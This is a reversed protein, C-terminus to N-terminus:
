AYNLLCRLQEKHIDSISFRPHKLRKNLINLILQYIMNQWIMGHFIGFSIKPDIITDMYKINKLIGTEEITQLGFMM